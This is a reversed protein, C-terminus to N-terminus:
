RSKVEDFVKWIPDIQARGKPDLAIEKYTRFDTKHIDKHHPCVDIHNPVGDGDSDGECLDGVGNGSLM